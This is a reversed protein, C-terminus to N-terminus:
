LVQNTVAHNTQVYSWSSWSRKPKLINSSGPQVPQIYRVLSPAQLGLLLCFQPAGGQIFPIPRSPPGGVVDHDAM